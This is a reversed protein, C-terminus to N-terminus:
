CCKGRGSCRWHQVRSSPRHFSHVDPRYCFDQISFHVDKSTSLAPYLHLRLSSPLLNHTTMSSRSNFGTSATCRIRISPLSWPINIHCYNTPHFSIPAFLLPVLEALNVQILLWFVLQKESLMVFCIHVASKQV